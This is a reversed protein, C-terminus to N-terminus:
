ASSRSRVSLGAFDSGRFPRMIFRLSVADGGIMVRRMEPVYGMADAHIALPGPPLNRIRFFGNLDTATRVGLAPIFLRTFPVPEGFADVVRGTVTSSTSSGPGTPDEPVSSAQSGNRAQIGPVLPVGPLTPALQFLPFAVLLSSTLRLREFRLITKM